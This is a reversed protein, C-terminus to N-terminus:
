RAIEFAKNPSVSKSLNVALVLAVHQVFFAQVFAVRLKRLTQGLLWPVWVLILSSVFESARHM